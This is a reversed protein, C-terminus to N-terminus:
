YSVKVLPQAGSGWPADSSTIFRSSAEGNEDVDDDGESEKRDEIGGFAAAVGLGDECLRSYM